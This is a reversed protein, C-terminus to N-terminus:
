KVLKITRKATATNGAADTARVTVKAQVNKGEALARRAQRRQRSELFLGMKWLEGPAIVQPRPSHKGPSLEDRKVKTLRGHAVATCEEDGCSVNVRVECWSRDCTRHHAQPNQPGKPASLQLDPPANDIPEGTSSTAAQAGLAMVGAAAAGIVIALRRYGHARM